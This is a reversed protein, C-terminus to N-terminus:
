GSRRASSKLPRSSLVASRPIGLSHASSAEGGLVENGSRAPIGPPRFCSRMSVSCIFRLMGTFGSLPQLDISAGRRCVSLSYDNANM